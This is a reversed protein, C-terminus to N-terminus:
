LKTTFARELRLVEKWLFNYKNITQWGRPQRYLEVISKHDVQRTGTQKRRGGASVACTSLACQELASVVCDPLNACGSGREACAGTETVAFPPPPFPPAMVKPGCIPNGYSPCAGFTELCRRPCIRRCIWSQM